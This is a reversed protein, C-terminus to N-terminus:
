EGQLIERLKKYARHARVKVASTSAGVAVGIEKYSLGEYWHLVLVDRQDQGLKALARQVTRDSVSSVGPEVAPEGHREPDYMTEPKRALRRFHERRVNSAITYLWPRLSRDLHFDNRARHVHMFTQQVMDRSLEPSSTVRLFYGQLRGGYRRFLEEFAGRQGAQVYLAMLQEDTAESLNM